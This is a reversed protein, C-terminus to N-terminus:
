DATLGHHPQDEIPTADRALLWIMAGWSGIRLAWGLGLRLIGLLAVALDVDITDSWGLLWIPGQIAVGVAGPLLFLWTLRTCLRVVQKDAHWATPDGTVSGLMFGVFPWGVLCSATMVVTYGLSILIGPLFFALAQDSASGGSSAAIRVFVWGIAIAFFANLVYQVTSRQVLRLVLCVAAAAVSVVLALQLEKTTLWLLTFLIGPVGAELMGRRGGLASAMQARVLAEVTDVSVTPKAAASSPQQEATM